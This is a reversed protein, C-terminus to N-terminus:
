RGSARRAGGEFVGAPAPAAPAGVVLGGQAGRRAPRAPGVQSDGAIRVKYQKNFKLTETYYAARAPGRNPRAAPRSDRGGGGVGWM